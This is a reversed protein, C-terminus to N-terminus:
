HCRSRGRSGLQEGVGPIVEHEWERVQRLVRGDVALPTQSLVFPLYFSQKSLAQGQSGRPSLLFGCEARLHCPGVHGPGWCHGRLGAGEEVCERLEPVASARAPGEAESM